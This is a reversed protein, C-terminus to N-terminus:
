QFERWVMKCIFGFLLGETGIDFTARSRLTDELIKYSKNEDIKENNESILQLGVRSGTPNALVLELWKLIVRSRDVDTKESAVM